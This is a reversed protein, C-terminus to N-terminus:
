APVRERVYAVLEQVTQLRNLDHDPITIGLAEELTMAVEAIDLSDAGLDEIIRSTETVEASPLDLHDALTETVFRVIQASPMLAM